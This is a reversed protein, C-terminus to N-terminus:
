GVQFSEKRRSASKATLKISRSVSGLRFKTAAVKEVVLEGKGPAIPNPAPKPATQAPRHDPKWENNSTELLNPRIAAELYKEM